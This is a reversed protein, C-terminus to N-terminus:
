WSGAACAYYLERHSSVFLFFKGFKGCKLKGGRVIIGVAAGPESPEKM